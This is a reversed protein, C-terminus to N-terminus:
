PRGFPRSYVSGGAIAGQCQLSVGALKGVAQRPCAASGPDAVALAEELAASRFRLSLLQLSLELQQVEVCAVARFAAASCAQGGRHVASSGSSAAGRAAVAVAMAAAVVV